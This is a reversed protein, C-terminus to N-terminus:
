AGAVGRARITERLRTEVSPPLRWLGLMGTTPIPTALPRVDELVWAKAGEYLATQAAREDSEEMPRCDVLRAVALIQGLPYDDKSGLMLRNKGAHIAIWGRYPTAWTRTEITKKGDAIMTAWPQILTLGRIDFTKM